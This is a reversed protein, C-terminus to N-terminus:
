GRKLDHFMHDKDMDEIPCKAMSPWVYIDPGIEQKKCIGDRMGDLYKKFFRKDGHNSGNSIGCYRPHYGDLDMYVTKKMGFTNTHVGARPPVVKAYKNPMGHMLLKDVDTELKGEANLMGFVRRFIAKDGTFGLMFEIAEKSIIHDIDTMLLYEGLAIRAGLNRACAQTWDRFDGTPIIHLNRFSVTAELAPVSGDDMIIVEVSKPLRMRKFYLLQRRFIEHSDLVSIIVSVKIKPFVVKRSM